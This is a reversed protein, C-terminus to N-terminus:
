RQYAPAAMGPAKGTDRREAADPSEQLFLPKTGLSGTGFTKRRSLGRHRGVAARLDGRADLAVDPHDGAHHDEPHDHRDEVRRDDVDRQSVSQFSRCLEIECIWHTTM